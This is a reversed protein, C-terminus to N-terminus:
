IFYIDYREFPNGRFGSLCRCEARSFQVFCEANIGCPNTVLCPNVCNANICARGSGCESNIRCGVTHCAINPNGDFGNRCSCIARHNQVYCDANTGCDSCPSRCLRNICAESNSCDNDSVCGPPIPVIVAHCQGNEDPVWGEPCTCIMTRVPITDLVSCHASPHCPSLEKCPNVCINRICALKSPCDVDFECEPKDEIKIPAECYSLPNGVPLHPPCICLARHNQSRCIANQACVPNAISSCPDVCRQELCMRTNPCDNDSQCEIRECRTFPNGEYGPPCRCSARHNNGFCEANTACLDGLICPNTCQGNYCQM